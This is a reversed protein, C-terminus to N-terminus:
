RPRRATVFVMEETIAKGAFYWFMKGEAVGIARKMAAKIKPVLMAKLRNLQNELMYLRQLKATLRQVSVDEKGAIFRRYMDIELIIEAASSGATEMMQYYSLGNEDARKELIRM